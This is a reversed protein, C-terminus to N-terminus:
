EVLDELISAIVAAEKDVVSGGIQAEAAVVMSDHWDLNGSLDNYLQTVLQDASNNAHVSKGCSCVGTSQFKCDPNDCSCGGECSGECSVKGPGKSKAIQDRIIARVGLEDLTRSSYRKNGLGQGLLTEIIRSAQKSELDKVESEDVPWSLGTETWQEETARGAMSMIFKVQKFSAPPGKSGPEAGGREDWYEAKEEYLELYDEIKDQLSNRWNNTRKVIPAKGSVLPRNIKSGMFQVRIADEGVGASSGWPRISTWVRIFVTPSLTLDYYLERNQTGQTPRLARFGRKLFAEMEPGTVEVYAM